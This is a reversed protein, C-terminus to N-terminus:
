TVGDKVRNHIAQVVFVVISYKLRGVVYILICIPLLFLLKEATCFSKFCLLYNPSSAVAPTRYMVM